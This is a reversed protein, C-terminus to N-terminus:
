VRQPHSVRELIQRVHNRLLFMEFETLGKRKMETEVAYFQIGRDTPISKPKGYRKFAEKAIEVSHSSTAERFKGYGRIFRSADDEYVILWEGKWRKDKIEHWDAHWLSNSYEREYRM